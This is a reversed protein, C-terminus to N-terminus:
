RGEEEGKRDVFLVTLLCEPARGGPFGGGAGRGEGTVLDGPHFFLMTEWNEEREKETKGGRGKRKKKKGGRRCCFMHFLNSSAVM